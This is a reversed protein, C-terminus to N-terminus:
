DEGGVFARCTRALHDALPRHREPNPPPSRVDFGDRGALFDEATTWRALDFAPQLRWPHAMSPIFLVPTGLALCPLACHLRSTVVCRAGAYTSLLREAKERRIREPTAPAEHQTVVLPAEGFRRGLADILPPALDCAVVRGHEEGARATVTLTLCGSYYSPVDYRAFLDETFRDRAGVPARARLYHGHKRLIMKEPTPAWRRLRSPASPRLHFSIFLPDV